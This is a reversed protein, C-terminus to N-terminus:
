LMIVMCNLRLSIVRQSALADIIRSCIYRLITFRFVLIRKVYVKLCEVIIILIIIMCAFLRWIYRHALMKPIELLSLPLSLLKERYVEYLRQREAVITELRNLQSLGLAAQLDTLRYNFGLEQQEYSWPGLPPREYRSEDKTIGHSRMRLMRQALQPDNTTALGGEATTIIKVPHFSFVSIKSYTCSGVPNNQYRGGIAHSADEIVDFGYRDALQGIAEM